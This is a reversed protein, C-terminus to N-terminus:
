EHDHDDHDGDVVHIEVNLDLDNVGSFQTYNPNNWDDPTINAKVGENLHRLVVNFTFSDSPKLVHLYGTVGVQKNDADAYQYDLVGEPAGLFFIQHIDSDDLFEQEAGERGVFDTASLTLRYTKGADLHLHVGVPPLGDEDFTVEVIEPDELDHAHDDHWEVETFTLTASGIEEQPVEPEPDDKSCSSTFALFGTSLLLVFLSKFPHKM